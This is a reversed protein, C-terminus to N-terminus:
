QKWLQFPYTYPLKTITGNGLSNHFINCSFTHHPPHARTSLESRVSIVAQDHRQPYNVLEM